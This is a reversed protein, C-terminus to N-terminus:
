FWWFIIQSGALLLECCVKNNNEYIVYLPWRSLQNLFIETASLFCYNIAAKLPICISLRKRRFSLLVLRISIMSNVCGSKYTKFPLSETSPLMSKDTKSAHNSSWIFTEVRKSIYIVFLLYCTFVSLLYLCIVM